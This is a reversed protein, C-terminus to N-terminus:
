HTKRFEAPSLGTWRKFARNFASQESFGTRFAIEGVTNDTNKLLEESIEQQVLSVLTRFNHGSEALRRNLSRKSLGLSESIHEIGPIGSPLADTVLKKIDRLLKYASIEIGKAEEDMRDRLFRNISEDAKATRTNLDETRYAIYNNTQNFKVPCRFTEQYLQLNEHPEHQFCVETPYFNKGTIAQVVTVTASFTAENSRAVGMRYPGRHLYIRSNDGVDKVEFVYTNTLLNFYRVSRDFLDRAQSCTKWSLGLVGYDDMEMNSGVRLACGTPLQEHAIEHLEFFLDAPVAEPRNNGEVLPISPIADQPLGESLVQKVMKDYLRISTFKM